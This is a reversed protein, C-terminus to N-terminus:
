AAGLLAEVKMDLDQPMNVCLDFDNCHLALRRLHLRLLHLEESLQKLTPDPMLKVTKCLPRQSPTQSPTQLDERLVAKVADKEILSDGISMVNRLTDVGSSAQQLFEAMANRKCSVLIDMDEEAASDPRRHEHAYYVPIQLDQLLGTLDLGPLYQEASEFVWPRSASTVIAVRALGSAATLLQHVLDAHKQLAGYCPFDQSLRPGAVVKAGGRRLGNRRSLATAAYKPPCIKVADCVFSTPLLTDDWDFIIYTTRELPGAPVSGPVDETADLQAAGCPPPIEVAALAEVPKKTPALEGSPTVETGDGEDESTATTSCDSESSSRLQCVPNMEEKEGGGGAGAGTGVQGGPTVADCCPVAKWLQPEEEENQNDPLPASPLESVGALESAGNGM